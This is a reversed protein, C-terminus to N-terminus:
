GESRERGRAEFVTEIAERIKRATEPRSEGPPIDRVATLYERVEAPATQLYHDDTVFSFHMRAARLRDELSEEGTLAELAQQAKQTIYREM